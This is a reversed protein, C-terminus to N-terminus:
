TTEPLRNLNKRWEMFLPCFYCNDNHEGDCSQCIIKMEAAAKKCRVRLEEQDTFEELAVSVLNIPHM